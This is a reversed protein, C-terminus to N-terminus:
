GVTDLPTVLPSGVLGGLSLLDTLGAQQQLQGVHEPEFGLGRCSGRVGSPPFYRGTRSAAPRAIVLDLGQDGM